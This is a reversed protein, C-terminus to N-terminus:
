KNHNEYPDYTECLARTYIDNLYDKIDNRNRGSISLKFAGVLSPRVTITHETWGSYNGYQDMHHYSLNFILKEQTSKEYDFTTGNDVGSGSPMHEFIFCEISNWHKDRWKINGITQCNQMANHQTAFIESLKMEIGM